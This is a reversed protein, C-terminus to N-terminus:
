TADQLDFGSPCGVIHGFLYTLWNLAHEQQGLYFFLTWAHV